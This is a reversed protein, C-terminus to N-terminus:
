LENIRGFYMTDIVEGDTTKYDCTIVGELKFGNKEAIKISGMNSEHTRIYLKRFNKERFAFDVILGVAKSIVGKGEYAADIYYGIEAKPISWDVSKIQISGILENTNTDVVVFPFYKDKEAKGIVDALHEITADFTQTIAVTGAFFRELRKRNNSILKFYAAADDM